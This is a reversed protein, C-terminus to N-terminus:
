YKQCPFVKHRVALLDNPINAKFPGCVHLRGCNYNPAKISICDYVFKTQAEGKDHQFTKTSCKEM